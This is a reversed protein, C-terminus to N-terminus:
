KKWYGALDLRYIPHLYFGQVHRSCVSVERSSTLPAYPVADAIAQQMASYAAIRAEPDGLADARVRQAELKASWWHSLNSGGPAASERGCMALVWEGPDPVAARWTVLTLGFGTPKMLRRRYQAGSLTELRTRIGAAALDHRIAAIVAPHQAGRRVTLATSIGDPHGARRLLARSAKPAYSSYVGATEHGPLDAPYFQWLPSSQHRDLAAIGNRDVACSVARRVRVDEFERRSTNIALYTATLLSRSALRGGLGSEAGLSAVDDPTLRYGLADIGGLRIGAVADAAAVGLAYEIGDVHPRATQWYRPNRALGISDSRTWKLFTFPGTGLPHEEFEQGWQEVWERPVVSCAEKALVNLFTPEPATLEVRLTTDDAAEIGRIEDDKGALFRDAGVVRRLLQRTEAPAIDVMRELSYKVDHATLERNIPPHFSVGKRLRFTYTKRDASLGGNAVTPVQAALCPELATGPLGPEAAYRVLGEYVARVVGRETANKALAPDLSRPQARCAVVLTGGAEPTASPESPTGSPHVPPGQGCGGMLALPLALALATAVLVGRSAGRFTM